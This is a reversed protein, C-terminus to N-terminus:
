RDFHAARRWRQAPLHQPGARLKRVSPPDRPHPDVDLSLRRSLEATSLPKGAETLEGLVVCREIVDPMRSARHLAEPKISRHADAPSAHEPVLVSTDPM